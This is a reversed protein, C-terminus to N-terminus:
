QRSGSSRKLEAIEELLALSREQLAISKTAMEMGDSQKRTARRQLSLSYVVLWLVGLGLVVALLGLITDV